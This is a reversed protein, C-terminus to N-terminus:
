SLLDVLIKGTARGEALVSLGEDLLADLAIVHDIVASSLKSRELIRLAAPLDEACVHALTGHLDVERRTLELLDLESMGSHLGLVIVDGGRRVMNLALQPSGKKGTAEVVVHAGLGCTFELVKATPDEKTADIVQTAGLALATELRRADVDVAILPAVEQEAAGAVLFAGIGGSGIIVASGGKHTKARRLAHIAVAMPQALAASVDDLGSGVKRCISAPTLVYEALGGNVHLGLTRYTECLNTRGSLCWECIGCSIGAGSVIRDGGAFGTVGAGFDVVEGTFEHGLVVPPVALVPGHDWEASDTGCIGAKSVRILLEGVGPPAPDGILEIRIDHRGYYVAARV